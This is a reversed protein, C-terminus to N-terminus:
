VGLYQLFSAQQHPLCAASIPCASSVLMSGPAAQTSFPASLLHWHCPLLSASSVLMWGLFHLHMSILCAHQRLHKTHQYPAASLLLWLCHPSVHQHSLCTASPAKLISIHSLLCSSGFATLLQTSVLCACQWPLHIHTSILCACQWPLPLNHASSVLMCAPLWPTAFALFPASPFCLAMPFVRLCFLSCCAAVSRSSPEPFLPLRVAQSASLPSSSQQMTAQRFTCPLQQPFHLLHKARPPPLLHQVCPICAHMLACPELAALM